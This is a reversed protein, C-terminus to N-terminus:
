PSLIVPTSSGTEYVPYLPALRYHNNTLTLPFLRLSPGNTGDDAYYSQSRWSALNSSDQMRYSLGDTFYSNSPVRWGLYKVSGEVVIQMSLNSVSGPNMPDSGLAFEMLNASRDDDWDQEPWWENTFAAPQSAAWMEYSGARFTRVRGSQSGNTNSFPAGAVKHFKYGALASGFQEGNATGNIASGDIVNTIAYQYLRVRGRSTGGGAALPAGVAILGNDFDISSGFSPGENTSGEMVAMVNAGTVSLTMVYAKGNTTGTAGVLIISSMNDISAGFGGPSGAPPPINTVFGWNDTGGTNKAYVFVSPGTGNTYPRTVCLVSGDISLKSGFGLGASPAANTRYMGWNNTGGTNIEYVYTAGHNVGSIDSLPAGVFLFRDNLAVSTGFLSNTDYPPALQKVVPLASQGIVSNVQYIYVAGKDTFEGPAGVAVWASLEPGGFSDVPNYVAISAGFRDGAAPFEKALRAVPYWAKRGGEDSLHWVYAAGSNANEGPMGAVMFTRSMGLAAGFEAPSGQVQFLKELGWNTPGGATRTHLSAAWGSVDGLTNTDGASLLVSSGSIAPKYNGRIGSFLYDIESYAYPGTQGARELIWGGPGSGNSFIWYSSTSASGEVPISQAALRSGDTSVMISRVNPINTLLAGAYSWSGGANTYALMVHQGSVPDMASAALRSGSLAVSAFPYEIGAPNNWIVGSVGWNDSGGSNRDHLQITKATASAIAVRDGDLSLDDALLDSGSSIGREAVQTWNTGSLEYIRVFWDYEAFFVFTVRSVLVALRNTALDLALATEGANTFLISSQQSWFSSSPKVSNFNLDWVVVRGEFGAALRNGNASISLALDSVLDIETWNTTAPTRCYTRVNNTRGGFFRSIGPEIVAAIDGDLAVKVPRGADASTLADFEYPLIQADTAAVICFLFLTLVAM